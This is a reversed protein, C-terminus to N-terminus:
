EIGEHLHGQCARGWGRLIMGQALWHAFGQETALASLAEAGVQTSAGERRFQSLVAAIALPM